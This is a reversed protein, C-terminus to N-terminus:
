GIPGWILTMVAYSLLLLLGSVCTASAVLLLMRTPVDAKQGREREVIRVITRHLILSPTGVVALLVTGAPSARWLGLGAAIWAIGIMLTRVRIPRRGPPSRDDNPSRGSTPDSM